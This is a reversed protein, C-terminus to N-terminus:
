AQGSRLVFTSRKSGDFIEQRDSVLIRELTDKLDRVTNSKIMYLDAKERFCFDISYMDNRSSYIVVPMTDYTTNSRIEQLCERGNKCPMFLDLFLIDPVKMELMAMLEEGDSARELVVNLPIERLADSFFYFDDDDDDALLVQVLRDEERMPNTM